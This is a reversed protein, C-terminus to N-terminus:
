RNVLRSNVLMFWGLEDQIRIVFYRSSDLVQEMAACPYGDLPCQAFLEGVTCCYIVFRVIILNNFNNNNCVLITIM